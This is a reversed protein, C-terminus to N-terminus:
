ERTAERGIRFAAQNVDERKPKKVLTLKTSAAPKKREAERERKHEQFAAM